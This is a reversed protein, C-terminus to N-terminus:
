TMSSAYRSLHFDTDGFLKEYTMLKKYYHSVQYEDTCGYGGHLQIGQGAVFLGAHSVVVKVSSIAAKRTAADADLHAAGRYFISRAEQAEVFMEAMRHQLAQFNGIAQGFQKRTKIYDSTLTLVTDIAGIAEASMGLIARDVAEDLLAQAAPGAALLAEAPLPTADFRIDAARAGDILPYDSSAVGKSAVDVIFLALAGDLTASVILRDAAAGHLVLTKAGALSWGAGARTATTSPPRDLDFHRGPENHALALKLRGEILAPLVAHRQSQNDSRDVLTAGLLATSVYPELALVSGLAEMVLAAEIFSCGLGGVDEPLALGLWGFEAYQQWHPESYGPAKAKAPRYVTHFDYEDRTFRQASDRLMQQEENLHFDM